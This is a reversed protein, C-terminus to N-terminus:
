NLIPVKAKNGFNVVGRVSEDLHSFLEKDGYMFEVVPTWFGLTKATVM